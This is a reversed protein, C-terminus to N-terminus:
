GRCAQSAKQFTRGERCFARWFKETFAPYRDYFRPAVPAFYEIHAVPPTLKKLTMGEFTPSDILDSLMAIDLRKALVQAVVSRGENTPDLGWGRATGIVETMQGRVVGVVPNSATLTRGDWIVSDDDQRVYLSVTTQAIVLALDPKGESLPFRLKQGREPSWAFGAVGDQLDDDIEYIMRPVPRRTLKLETRCGTAAVAHQIWAVLMGPPDGFAEGDQLLLPPFATDPVLLRIRAPCEAARAGIMTLLVVAVTALLIRTM